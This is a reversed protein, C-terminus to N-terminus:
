PFSKKETKANLYEDIRDQMDIPEQGPLSDEICAALLLLYNRADSIRQKLGEGDSNSWTWSFQEDTVQKLIAQIHKALYTAAVQEPSIKLMSSLTKFNELVDGDESAYEGRKWNLLKDEEQRFEIVISQFKSKNM